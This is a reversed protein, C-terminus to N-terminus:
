EWVNTQKRWCVDFAGFYRLFSARHSIIVYYLDTALIHSYTSLMSISVSFQTRFSIECSFFVDDYAFYKWFM